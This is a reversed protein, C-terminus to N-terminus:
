VLGLWARRSKMRRVVLLGVVAALYLASELTYVKGIMVFHVAGALIAPYALLHLKKWRLAGLRKIAANNSTLALPILALFAVFGIIIYPRKTLDTLIVSWRLGLDLVSWTLFHLAVFMFGILGVARRFKVLNLGVWRLPTICLSAILVQLGLSGLDRELVKAPDPTLIASYITWAAVAFGVIYLPWTPLKRAVRNVADLM